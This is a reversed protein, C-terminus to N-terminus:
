ARRHPYVILVPAPALGVSAPLRGLVDGDIQVPAGAPTAFRFSSVRVIDVDKLRHLRGMALAALARLAPWRGPRKFLALEFSPDALRAAPALVFKGAYFHAKTAVASAVRHESTRGELEAVVRYETPRYCWLRALISSLFALKGARRKLDLNLKEVVEADFGIGAMLLFRRSRSREGEFHIEGARVARAPGCAAIAALEAPDSPLGIENALVNGTGFPFIALPLTPDALGNVVENVTGDGGAVAIADFADRRAARAIAEADGPAATERLECVVAFAELARLTHQLRQRANRGAAPNFIVLLRRRSIESAVTM